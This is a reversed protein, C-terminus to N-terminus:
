VTVSVGVGRRGSLAGSAATRRGFQPSRCRRHATARRAAAELGRGRRPGDRGSRAVAVPAGRFAARVLVAEVLMALNRREHLDGVHLLYPAAVTSPLEVSTDMGCPAFDEDVGLPTVTIREPAIGYAATIEAASFRSVTLIHRAGQASRRYFARRLWDRRYPYWEPHLEYSVDHITVVVPVPSWWPATYAPAHIIDVAARRAARPLGVLTWGLNTPPHPPEAVHGVGRPIASSDRGGLAVLEIPEGLTLLARTLGRSTDAYEPRRRTSRAAMSASASRGADTASQMKCRANPSISRWTCGGSPGSWANCLNRSDPVRRKGNISPSSLVVEDISYRQMTAELRDLNGRVPVGVIWRRAKMPDDDIFAIPNMNWKRNARMERVLTQGFAGAGYVLVRRSRKSRTSAVLNMARFSARTGIM